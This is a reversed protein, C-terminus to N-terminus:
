ASEREVITFGVDVISPGLPLGEARDIIFRAAHRGIAEGDVHVSTLSPQLDAAFELDGFGVVALDAPVSIGRARAETLVGLALMDSSCFVADIKKKAELLDSLGKRGSKLTTPAPVTVVSVAPL